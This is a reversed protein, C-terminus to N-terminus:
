AEEKRDRPGRLPYDKRQPYEETGPPNLIRELNPHGKFRIGYMDFAEREHWNAGRWFRTLSPVALSDDPVLCRIRLRHGNATSALHIVTEFRPTRGLYDVGCLDIFLDFRLESHNRLQETVWLLDEGRVQIWPDSHSLGGDVIRPGLITRLLDVNM